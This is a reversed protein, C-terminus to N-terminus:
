KFRRLDKADFRWEPTIISGNAVSYWPSFSSETPNALVQTEQAPMYSQALPYKKAGKDNEIVDLVIVAHGYPQKKQIFVDGPQIDIINKVAVLEDHLSGTNAYSFIYKMYKRFNKYSYDGKAFESFYHPKGDSLFNFHIEDYRKQAFLWEGRLRMVADACQQLDVPDIEQNVVSVYVDENEKEAGNYYKVKSSIKKLPLSRLYAGFSNTEAKVRKFGDVPLFRKEVTSQTSDILLQNATVNGGAISAPDTRECSLLFLMSFPLILNKM